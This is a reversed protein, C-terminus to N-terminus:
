PASPPTESLRNGECHMLTSSPDIELGASESGSRAIRCDRILTDQCNRVVIGRTCDTLNLGQLVFGQCRELILAGETSRSRHISCASILCDASDSFRLSAPREFERPNFTNGTVTIRRSHTAVLHDPQPAFFTNGSLTVDACWDLHLNLTTDSLINGTITVSDIPYAEKGLLRINAGGPAITQGPVPGYNASHQVTCGTIAVEAISQTKDGASGSVDLLINAIRDAPLGPTSPMNAEVDCGTIQLNRVNGDRVVIGGQRNYSVHCHAIHIQHLNVADLYIGVGENGYLHCDSILVNRNRTVLHIGHRCGRVAVQSIIPQVCQFLEIGDAEAHNGLITIGTVSPTAENWTAPQFSQPAASGHHSGQLRLAPGPGDMILTARGEASRITAGSHKALDFSLPRTIRHPGRPLLLVGRREDIQAQLELTVDPLAALDPIQRILDQGAPSLPASLLLGTVLAPAAFLFPRFMTKM